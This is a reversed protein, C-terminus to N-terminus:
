RRNTHGVLDDVGTGPSEINTENRSREQVGERYYNHVMTGLPNVTVPLNLETSRFFPITEQPLILYQVIFSILDNEGYNNTLSWTCDRM